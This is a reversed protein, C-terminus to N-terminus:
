NFIGAWYYDKVSCDKGGKTCIVAVVLANREPRFTLWNTGFKRFLCESRRIVVVFCCRGSQLKTLKLM